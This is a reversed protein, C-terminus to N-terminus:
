QVQFQLGQIRFEVGQIWFRLGLGLSLGWVGLAFHLRSTHMYLILRVYNFGQVGAICRSAVGGWGFGKGKWRMWRGIHTITCTRAPTFTRAGGMAGRVRRPPDV